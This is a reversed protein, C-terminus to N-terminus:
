VIEFRYLIADEPPHSYYRSRRGIQTFGLSLYLNRAALNSERVELFVSVAKQKRAQDLLKLVLKRGLGQRRTNQEVLVNEIEWEANIASAVLFGTITGQEVVLTVRRPASESFLDRYHQETWHAASTCTEEIRMMGTIDDPTAPRINV